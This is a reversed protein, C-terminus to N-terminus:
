KEKKYFVSRNRGTAKALYMASDAAKLVEELNGGHDPYISIGVSITINLTEGRYDVSESAIKQRWQDARKILIDQKIRPFLVLFEEGGFRCVIDNERMTSELRSVLEKLVFDGTDHGYTDNFKKFHDIDLLLIGISHGKLDAAKFLEPTIESLYRRNFANTLPDRVVEEKLRNELDSKISLENNLRENLQKLEMEATKHSTIDSILIIRGRDKKRSNLYICHLDLFLPSDGPIIHEIHFDTERSFHFEVSEWRPIIEEIGAGLCYELSLGTIECAQENIELIKNRNDLFVFGEKISRILISRPIQIAKLFRFGIIGFALLAASLSLTIPTWDLGPIPNVDFIYIINGFIPLLSGIMMILTQRKYFYSYRFITIVYLILGGFLLSYTGGLFLWFVPGHQYLAINTAPDITISPWVLHHYENTLAFTFIISSFALLSIILKKSLWKSMRGYEMAFLFYFVPTTVIGPYSIKSWLIKEYLSTGSVEFIVSLAWWAIAFSMFSLFKVNYKERIRFILIGTLLSFLGCLLFILSIGSFLYGPISVTNSFEM